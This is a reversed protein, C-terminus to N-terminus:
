EDVIEADVVDADRAGAQLAAITAAPQDRMMELLATKTSHVVDIKVAHESAIEIRKVDRFESPRKNLLIMAIANMNGKMAIDFLTREVGDIARIKAYAILEAFDPEACVRKVKTPSWKVEHGALMEPTGAAVKELFQERESMEEFDAYVDQDSSM